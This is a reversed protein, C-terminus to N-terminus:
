CSSDFRALVSRIKKPDGVTRLYACLEADQALLAIRRLIELHEQTQEKPTLILFFLYCLEGDIARFDVGSPKCGLVGEIEEVGEYQKIHPIAIGNGVGTSGEKERELVRSIIGEKERRGVKGTKVLFEVLERIIGEKCDASLSVIINEETIVDSLKTKKSQKKVRSKKLHKVKKLNSM